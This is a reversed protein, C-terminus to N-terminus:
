VQPIQELQPALAQRLSVLFPPEQVAPVVVLQLLVLLEPPAVPM